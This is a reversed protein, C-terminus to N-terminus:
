RACDPCCSLCASGGEIVGELTWRAGVGEKQERSGPAFSDNNRPRNSDQEAHPPGTPLYTVGNTYVDAM